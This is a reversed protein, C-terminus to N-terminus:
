LAGLVLAGDLQSGLDRGQIHEGENGTIKGRNIKESSM